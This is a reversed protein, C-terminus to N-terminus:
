IVKEIMDIYRVLIDINKVAIRLVEITFALIVFVLDSTVATNVQKDPSDARIAM